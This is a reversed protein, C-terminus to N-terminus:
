WLANPCKEVAQRLMALSAKYQSQIGQKTYM